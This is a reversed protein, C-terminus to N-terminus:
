KDLCDIDSQLKVTDELGHIQHYCCLRWRAGLSVLIRFVIESNYKNGVQLIYSKDLSYVNKEGDHSYSDKNACGDLPYGSGYDGLKCLKVSLTTKKPQYDLWM